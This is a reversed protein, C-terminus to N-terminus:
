ATKSSQPNPCDAKVPSAVALVESLAAALESIRFPKQMTRVQSGGADEVATREALDGTMFVFAPTRGHAGTAALQTMREYLERGSIASPVDARLNLDCLVADFSRSEMLCLAEEGSPAVEVRMGRSALGDRVMERIGEEDDVVLVSHGALAGSPVSDARAGPSQSLFLETGKAVPLSVTFVSGGDPLPQPEIQGNHERLIALCISLGLGTGRGPRKTTFFPDFIKSLIDRRIGVGDDQFTAVVRDGLTALRIRLTGSDRIERIAQEANVILNLFVQTLQSADGLVAALDTRPVFDVTIHNAHLSREHLQLSRQILDSLYLRTKRPQPPRAFSLLSQVIQAARRAQGYALDLHRRDAEDKGSDRLMETVGLVATLPNNLEHAVGAIMQGMAALRETQILQQELRKAETIDRMSAIIGEVQGTESFLPSASTRFLRMEGTRTEVLVDMSEGAGGPASLIADFRAMLEARDSPDLREGLLHGVMEEPAFGLLDKSRPSVFTCRGARDVAVVLDPFCEILKRAFEQQRHLRQEMERRETIDAFTGQQRTIRGGADRILASSHLCTLTTGDACRLTAEHGTLSGSRAIERRQAEWKEPYYFLDSLPRNLLQGPSDYGLMRALAPNVDALLGTETAVYVGEQLTEFLETFRAENERQQTIDRALVGLGYDAGNRVLTHVSCQFYRLSGTHKLRVRLVGSWNRRQLVAPVAQAACARGTGDPLDVFEDLPRGVLSSFSQGLLDACSRNAAIIRGELSFSFLLDEFTDILDRYGQQSRQVMGFLKELQDIDPLQEDRQALGRVLGRLESIEATKSWVYLGFLCVLVVLAAPLIRWERPLAEEQGYAIVAMGVALAVLVVLALIWIRNERRALRDLRDPAPSPSLPQTDPHRNTDQPPMITQTTGITETL